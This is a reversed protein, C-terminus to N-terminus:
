SRIIVHTSAIESNTKDFASDKKMGNVVSSGEDYSARSAKRSVDLQFLLM